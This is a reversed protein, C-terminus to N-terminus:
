KRNLILNLFYFGGLGKFVYEGVIFGSPPCGLFLDSLNRTVTPHGVSQNILRNVQDIAVVCYVSGLVLWGISQGTLM